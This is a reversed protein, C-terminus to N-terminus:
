GGLAAMMPAPDFYGKVTQIKGAENYEHVDIGEFSFEVGSKLFGQGSWKVAASNGTVFINDVNLQMSEFPQMINQMWQMVGDHGKNPPTGVPEYTMVDAALLALWGDIDGANLKTFFDTSAKQISQNSM